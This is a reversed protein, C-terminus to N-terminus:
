CLHNELSGAAKAERPVWASSTLPLTSTESQARSESQQTPESTETFSKPEPEESLGHSYLAWIALFHLGVQLSKPSLPFM